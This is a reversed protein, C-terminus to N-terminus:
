DGHRRDGGSMLEIKRKASKKPGGLNPTQHKVQMNILPPPPPEVSITPTTLQYVAALKTGNHRKDPLKTIVGAYYKNSLLVGTVALM